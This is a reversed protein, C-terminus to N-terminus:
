GGNPRVRDVIFEITDKVWFERSFVVPRSMSDYDTQELLLVLSSRPIHLLQAIKRNAPAPSLRARGRVIRIGSEQELLQYLSGRLQTLTGHNPLLERPLIDTTAVVPRGSATRVRELAVLHDSTLGLAMAAPEDQIPDVLWARDTGAQLGSREIMETVGLNRTLVCELVPRRSAIFTGVGHRRLLSGEDELSRLAERLTVRSVGLSAALVVEPPLTDGPRLDGAEIREVISARM